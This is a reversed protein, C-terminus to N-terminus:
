GARDAVLVPTERYLAPFLRRLSEIKPREHIAIYPQSPNNYMYDQHYSEARYFTKGAEITTAIRRTFVAATNLQGIYDSAVAAQEEDRPFIASRYQKGIDPGQKDVQTPDHVTSFFIELIQGYSITKPDFVIEVAEAHGTRGSETLEYTATEESGGAYGSTASIVGAVHQFAGQVGWFCGGAFIATQTTGTAAVDHLAPPIRRAEEASPTANGVIAAGLFGLVAGAALLPRIVSVRAGVTASIRDFM